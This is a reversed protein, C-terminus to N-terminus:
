KKGKGAAEQAKVLDAEAKALEAQAKEVEAKHKSNETTLRAVEAKLTENAGRSEDLLGRLNTIEATAGELSKLLEKAEPVVVTEPVTGDALTCCGVVPKAVIACKAVVLNDIGNGLDATGDEHQRIINLLKPEKDAQHYFAKKM